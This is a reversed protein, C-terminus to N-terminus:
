QERCKFCRAFEGFRKSAPDPLVAFMEGCEACKHRPCVNAHFPLGPGKQFAQQCVLCRFYGEPVLPVETPGPPVNVLM